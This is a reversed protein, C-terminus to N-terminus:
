HTRGTRFTPSVDTSGGDNAEVAKAIHGAYGYLLCSAPADIRGRPAQGVQEHFYEHGNKEEALLELCKGIWIGKTDRLLKNQQSMDRSIDLPLDVLHLSALLSSYQVHWPNLETCTPREIDLNLWCISPPM